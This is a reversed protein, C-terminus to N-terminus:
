YNWNNHIYFALDGHVCEYRIKTIHHDNEIYYLGIDIQNSNEFLIKQLRLVQISTNNVVFTDLLLYIKATLKADLSQYNLSMTTCSKSDLNSM